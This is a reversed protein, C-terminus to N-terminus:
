SQLVITNLLPIDTYGTWDPDYYATKIVASNYAYTGIVAYLYTNFTIYPAQDYIVQQAQSCISTLTPLSSGNFFSSVCAQVTPNYYAAINGGVSGNGVMNAWSDAPTVIYPLYAFQGVFFEMYPPDSLSDNLQTPYPNLFMTGMQSSTETVINSSLGLASFGAQVISAATECTLCGTFVYLTVAPVNAPLDANVLYQKALTLNYSYNSFNGLDYYQPFAPFEPAVTQVAYGLFVSQIFDTYNIAHVIAQRFDTNNTPFVNVNFGIMPMMTSWKPAIALTYKNSQSQVSALYEPAIESIQAAGTTLDGYRTVDDPKYYVIINKVQGPDTMPNAAIQASTLNKGWYTPNQTFQIYGNPQYGSVVYPGTGPVSNSEFYTNQGTIPSGQGGHELVYQFDNLYAVIGGVGTGALAYQGDESNIARFVVQYPGTVYIPWSSNEMVSLLAQSPNIVGSSNELAVTAPGFEVNSMNFPEYADWWGSFNGSTYWQAYLDGWVQYANFPDGNSFTVNQRLNFTIITGNSSVTYNSALVPIIQYSGQNFEATLNYSVLPQYVASYM